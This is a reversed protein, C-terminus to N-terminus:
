DFDLKLRFRKGGVNVPSPLGIPAYYGCRGYGEISAVKRDPSYIIDGGGNNGNAAFKMKPSIHFPTGILDIRGIGPHQRANPGCAAATAIPMSTVIVNGHRGHECSGVNTSFRRDNIDVNLTEPDIRFKSYTSIVDTGKSDGGATYQSFNDTIDFLSLYEEPKGTQMGYCYVKSPIGGKYFITYEGDTASPIQKLIDSCSTGIIEITPTLTPAVAASPYVTPLSSLESPTQSKIATPNTTPPTSSATPTQSKAVSPTPSTKVTPFSSSTSSPKASPNLPASTPGM